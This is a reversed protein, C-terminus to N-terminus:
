TALHDVTGSFASTVFALVLLWIFAYGATVLTTSQFGEGPGMMPRLDASKWEEALALGTSLLLCLLTKM